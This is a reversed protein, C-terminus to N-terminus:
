EADLEAVAAPHSVPDVSFIIRAGGVASACSTVEHPYVVVLHRPYYERNVWYAMRSRDGLQVGFLASDWQCKLVSAPPKNGIGHVYIITQVEPDVGANVILSAAALPKPANLSVRKPTAAAIVVAPPGTKSSTRARNGKVQRERSKKAAVKSKKGTQSTKPM